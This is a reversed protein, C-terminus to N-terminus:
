ARQMLRQLKEEKMAWFDHRIVRNAFERISGQRPISQVRAETGPAHETRTQSVQMLKQRFLVIRKSM